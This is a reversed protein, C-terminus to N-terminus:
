RRREVQVRVSVSADIRRNQAKGAATSNTAVPRSEGYGVASLRSAAIRYRNILVNMVANARRESLAQNYDEAGDSDTHGEIVVTTNNYERLFDAFEEIEIQYEDKVVSQNTDFHVALTQERQSADLIVCGRSDVALNRSTNPCADMSDVVGDRDSDMPAQAVPAAPAPTPEPAPSAAPHQNLSGFAYGISAGIAWDSNFSNTPEIFMAEFKALWNNSFFYKVGANLDITTHGVDTLAARSIQLAGIGAGVYPQWGSVKDFNYNVGSHYMDVDGSGLGGLVDTDVDWYQMSLTLRDKLPMEFGLQYGLDDDQTKDDNFFYNVVGASVNYRTDIDQAMSTATNLMLPLAVLATLATKLLHNKKM